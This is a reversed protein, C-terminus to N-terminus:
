VFVKFDYGDYRNLGDQTGIWIFGLQDQLIARADNESLGDEISLHVFKIPKEFTTAPDTIVEYLM